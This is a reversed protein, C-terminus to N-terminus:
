YYCLQLVIFLMKRLLFSKELLVNKCNVFCSLCILNVVQIFIVVLAAYRSSNERGCTFVHAGRDLLTGDLDPVVFKIGGKPKEIKFEINVNISKMESFKSSVFSVTFVNLLRACTLSHFFM